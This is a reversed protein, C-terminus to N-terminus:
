EFPPFDWLEDPAEPEVCRLARVADKQKISMSTDDDITSIFQEMWPALDVRKGEVSLTCVGVVVSPHKWKQALFKQLPCSLGNGRQGVITTPKKKKLWAMFETYSVGSVRHENTPKAVTKPAKRGTKAKPTKLSAIKAGM